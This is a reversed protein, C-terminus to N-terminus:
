RPNVIHGDKIPPFRNASNCASILRSTAQCNDAIAKNLKETCPFMRAKLKELM